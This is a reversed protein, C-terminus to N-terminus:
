LADFIQAATIYYKNSRRILPYLKLGKMFIIEWPSRRLNSPWLHRGLNGEFILVYM